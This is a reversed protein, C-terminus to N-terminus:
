HDTLTFPMLLGFHKQRDEPKTPSEKILIPKRAAEEKDLGRFSLEVIDNGMAQAIDLLQKANLRVKFQEPDSEVGSVMERAIKLPFQGNDNLNPKRIKINDIIFDKRDATEIPHVTMRGPWYKSRAIKIAEKTITGSKDAKDTSVQLVVLRKGDTALLQHNKADLYPHRMAERQDSGKDGHCVKEIKNSKKFQM